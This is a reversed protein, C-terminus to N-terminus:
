CTTYLFSNYSRLVSFFSFGCGTVLATMDAGWDINTTDVSAQYRSDVTSSSIESHPSGEDAISKQRHLTRILYATATAGPWPLKERVVLWRRLMSAFILGFFCVGISWMLLQLVTFKIPGNDKSTIVYEMAAVVGTFGATVPMCGTATSVTNILVNETAKLPRRLCNSLINFIVFGLLSSVVANQSSSGTKLGYYTNSLNIFVGIIAGALVARPTFSSDSTFRAPEPESQHNESEVPEDQGYPDDGLLPRSSEDGSTSM